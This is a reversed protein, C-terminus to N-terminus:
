KKLRKRIDKKLEDFYKTAGWMKDKNISYGAVKEGDKFLCIYNGQKRTTTKM